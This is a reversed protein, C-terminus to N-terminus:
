PESVQVIYVRDTTSLDGIPKGLEALIQEVTQAQSLRSEVEADSLM